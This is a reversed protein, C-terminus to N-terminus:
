ITALRWKSCAPLGSPEDGSVRLSLRWPFSPHISLGCSWRGPEEVGALKNVDMRTEAALSGSATQQHTENHGPGASLWCPRCGPPPPWGPSAGSRSRCGICTRIWPGTRWVSAPSRRSCRRVRPCCWSLGRRPPGVAAAPWIRGGNREGHPVKPRKPCVQLQAQWLVVSWLHKETNM